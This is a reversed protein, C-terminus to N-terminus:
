SLSPASLLILYIVLIILIILIDIKGLDPKEPPVLISAERIHPISTKVYRANKQLSPLNTISITKNPPPTLTGTRERINSINKSMKSTPSLVSSQNYNDLFM